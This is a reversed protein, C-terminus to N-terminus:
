IWQNNPNCAKSFYYNTEYSVRTTLQTIIIIIRREHKYDSISTFYLLNFFITVRNPTTQYRTQYFTSGGRKTDTNKLAPSQCFIKLVLTPIFPPNVLTLSWFEDIRSFLKHTTHIFLNFTTYQPYYFLHNHHSSVHQTAQLAQSHISHSRLTLNNTFSFLLFFSFLFYVLCHFLM